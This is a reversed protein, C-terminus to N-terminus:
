MRKGYTVRDEGDRYFDPITEVLVYGKKLYFRRTRMYRLASSTEILVLRGGQGHIFDEMWIMLCTGVGQGAYDPDVAIWYLDFTGDTLPTPGCCLFGVPQGAENAAVLFFYDKQAPQKITTDMLECALCVDDTDFESVRGLMDALAARDTTELKKLTLKM